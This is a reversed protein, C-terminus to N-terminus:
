EEEEWGGACAVCGVRRCVFSGYGALFGARSGRKFAGLSGVGRQGESLTGWETPVRYGVARHDRTSLFLGSRAARTAHGHVDGARRLMAAQNEPLRGRWFRWAHVRLQQRYLDGVKLMGHRAFLPDAHYLGRTGEVLRAFQKQYRLLAGGLVVNGGGEFDGWVMLCYQLHPLVLGNYLLLLSGRGLAASARGLVGLLRGVRARVQGIHGEWGLGEDVWVGLFRAGEVRRVQEGGVELGGRPCRM